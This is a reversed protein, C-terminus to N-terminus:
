CPRCKCKTASPLTVRRQKGNNCYITITKLTSEVPSCCLCTKAFDGPGFVKPVAASMCRGDCGQSPVRKITCGPLEIKLIGLRPRCSTSRGHARKGNSTNIGSSMIFILVLLATYSKSIMKSSRTVKGTQCFLSLLTIPKLLGLRPTSWEILDHIYHLSRVCLKMMLDVTSLMELAM